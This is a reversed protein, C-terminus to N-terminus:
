KGKPVPALGGAIPLGILAHNRDNLSKPLRAPAAINVSTSFGGNEGFSFTHTVTTVYAQFDFAPIQMLMGPWLEPMFTLPVEANYQYAWQRMFLFLASFFEGKAGVVGPLQQFDPRAGFRKYIFNIFKQASEKDAEIGFLAYLISPVDITAIGMTMAAPLVDQPSALGSALDIANTAAAAVTYQHTVFFDDSWEVNFDRIEIPEIVMKAATGWIGYYDPFWGILDGNPASSFSRMTANFLNKLYPLLPQDNLLARIGTFTASYAQETQDVVPTWPNNGFLRDYPDNENYWPQDQAREIPILPAAGTDGTGGGSPTDPDYTGGSGVSYQLNPLLYAQTFYGAIASASGWNKVSVGAATNHAGVMHKGDGVSMEVHGGSSTFMIAGATKAGQLASIKKGHAKLYSIQDWTVRPLGKLSGLLQYVCWQIFSSCDLKRVKHAPTNPPDDGGLQYRINPNDTVLKIGMDALAQGTARGNNKSGGGANWNPDNGQSPAKTGTSANALFTVIAKAMREHKAFGGPNGSVQVAEAAQAMSMKDRNKIKLLRNFFNKCQFDPDLLEAKTGWGENPGWGPRFGKITQQFLGICGYQNPTTMAKQNAGMSSEQYATMMGIALDRNSAGMHKGNNWIKEVYSVMEKSITEGGYVGPKMTGSWITNSDSPVGGIMGQGQLASYFQQAIEDAEEARADIDKAIKYAFEFWNKPIGAIHIKSPPWGVVEKLITLIANAIGGDEATKVAQLAKAVMEQSAPLGADWYWYQLRKLSCSASLPVVRPWATVLPVSNLYGTFVPMWSIRKMRVVIRDNPTFVGDYKRRANQLTFNFSSVGDSRRVLTGDVLDDSVDITGHRETEVYVKIGPSYLLTGVYDGWKWSALVGPAYHYTESIVRNKFLGFWGSAGGLPM